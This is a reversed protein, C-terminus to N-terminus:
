RFSNGCEEYLYLMRQSLEECTLKHNEKNGMQLHLTYFLREGQSGDEELGSLVNSISFNHIKSSSIQVMVENDGLKTASITSVYRAVDTKPQPEVYHEIARQGSVRVLLEKKKILKKVEEQLTQPISLKKPDSAPLCSRLSSFLSKIKKHRDRESANHNLKKTVVGNGESPVSVGLIEQIEQHEMGYTQYYNEYEGTSPWGFNPFVPPVLACM